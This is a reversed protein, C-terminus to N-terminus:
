EPSDKEKDFLSALRYRVSLGIETGFLGIRNVTPNAGPERRTVQNYAGTNYRLDLGLGIADSLAYEFGAKFYAGTTRGSFTNPGTSGESGTVTRSVENQIYYTNMGAGLSAIVKESVSVDYVLGLSLPVIRQSVKDTVTLNPFTSTGEFTANYLGVRGEVGLGKYFDVQAFFSPILSSSSSRANLPQFMATFEDSGYYNRDWHSLGVGIRSVQVQAMSAHAFLALTFILLIKKM